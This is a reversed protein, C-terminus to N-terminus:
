IQAPFPNFVSPLGPDELVEVLLTRSASLPPTQNDSVSVEIAFSQEGQSELPTWQIEGSASDLTLGTPIASLIEYTLTQAPADPDTGIATVAFAEGIELVVPDFPALSPAKNDDIVTVNFLQSSSLPPSNGDTVTVTIPITQGGNNENTIWRNRGSTANITVGPDDCVLSYRLSSDPGDPDNATATIHLIQGETISADAIVDLVPAQNVLSVSTSAEGTTKPTESNGAADSAISHFAYDNGFAGEFLASTNNSNELWLTFPGDNESVYIDYGTIANNDTGSWDVSFFGSNAVPLM